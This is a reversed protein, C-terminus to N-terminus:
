SEYDLDVTSNIVLKPGGITVIDVVSEVRQLNGDVLKVTITQNISFIQYNGLASQYESEDVVLELRFVNDGVKEVDTVYQESYRATNILSKLYAKAELETQSKNYTNGSYSTTMKGDRYAINITMGQTAAVIDYYFEGDENEGYTIKDTEKVTQTNAGYTVKQNISLNAVANKSNCADNLKDSLIKLCSVDDVETYKSEDIEVREASDLDSYKVEMFLEPIEEDGEEVDFVFEVSVKSVLFKNNATLKIKLDKVDVGMMEEIDMAESFEKISDASCGSYELTWSKDENQVFTKNKADSFDDFDIEDDLYVEEFREKTMASFLMQEYDEGSNNVFAKGGSYAIMSESEEDLDLDESTIETKVYNYYYYDATDDDFVIGMGTIKADVENGSVYFKMTGSTDARYSALSDMRDDVREYLEDADKPPIVTDLLNEVYDCSALTFVTALVLLLAFLKKKM